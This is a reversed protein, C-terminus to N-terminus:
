SPEAQSQKARSPEAQSQKARSPEAQSLMAMSDINAKFNLFDGKQEFVKSNKTDCKSFDCELFRM